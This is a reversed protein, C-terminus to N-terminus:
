ETAKLSQHEHMDHYLRTRTQYPEAIQGRTQRLIVGVDRMCDAWTDFSNLMCDVTVSMYDQPKRTGSRWLQRYALTDNQVAKRGYSKFSHSIDSVSTSFAGLTETFTNLGIFEALTFEDAALEMRESLYDYLHRYRREVRDGFMPDHQPQIDPLIAQWDEHSFVEMIRPFIKSEETDMHARQANLFDKCRFQINEVSESKKNKSLIKLSELLAATKQELSEHRIILSECEQRFDEDLNSLKKFIIDERPHHSHDSVNHLYSVIEFLINYDPLSHIEFEQLEESFLDLLKSIYKHENHLNLMVESGSLLTAQSSNAQRRPEATKRQTKVAVKKAPKQKSGNHKNQKTM